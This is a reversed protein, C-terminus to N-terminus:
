VDDIIMYKQEQSGEFAETILESCASGQRGAPSTVSAGWFIGRQGADEVFVGGRPQVVLLRSNINAMYGKWAVVEKPRLM